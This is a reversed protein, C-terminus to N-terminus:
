TKVPFIDKLYKCDVTYDPVLGHPTAAEIQIWGSFEIDDMARRVKQFDIRGQGLRHRDDKAHFECILRGLARIEKVVDRGKDTSNGVDYYVKVAPSGIRDLLRMNDEASLYSEVGITIGQREAEPVVHKLVGVFHDIEATRRLDLDGNYFCAPMTVTLGLAKCVDISEALWEAARPDSKLPVSNMEGIALSGIELGTRKATELYTKQLEPRRLAMDNAVTGMSIQVGDLGIQKAVDFAAPDCQKGISWDCAGIKFRRSDAAALLPRLDAAIAAIGIAGASRRLMTRRNIKRSTQNM